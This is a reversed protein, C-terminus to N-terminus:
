WTVNGFSEWGVLILGRKGFHSCFLQASVMELFDLVLCLCWTHSAPSLSVLLGPSSLAEPQQGQKQGRGRQGASTHGARVGRQPSRPKNLLGGLRVTLCCPLRM